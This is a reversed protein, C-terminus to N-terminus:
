APFTKKFTLEADADKKPHLPRPQLRTLGLQRLWKGITREHVALRPMAIEVDRAIAGAGCAPSLANQGCAMAGASWMGDSGIPSM